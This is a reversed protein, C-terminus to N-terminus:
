PIRLRILVAVAALAALESIECLAGYTDGNLGGLKKFFIFATSFTIIGVAALPVLGWLGLILVPCAVAVASGILLQPWRCHQKTRYGLGEQVAAPFSFVALLMSWRGLVPVLILERVEHFGVLDTLFAFKLLLVLLLALVGFVGIRSDKMISLRRERDAVAGLGDFTDALGDLHFGRTFVVWVTLTLVAAPLPSWVRAFLLACGYLLAGLLVGVAPYWATSRGLQKESAAAKGPIPLITLFRLALFFGL